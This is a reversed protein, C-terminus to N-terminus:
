CSFTVSFTGVATLTARPTPWAKPIPEPSTEPIAGWGRAGGEVHQRGPPSVSRSQRRDQLEQPLSYYALSVPLPSPVGSPAAKIQPDYYNYTQPFGGLNQARPWTNYENEKKKLGRLLGQPLTITILGM